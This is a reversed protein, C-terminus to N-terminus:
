IDWNEQLVERFEEWYPYIEELTKHERLFEFLRVMWMAGGSDKKITWSNFSDPFQENWVTYRGLFQMTLYLKMWSDGVACMRRYYDWQFPAEKTQIWNLHFDKDATGNALETFALLFTYGERRAHFESWMQFPTYKGITKLTDYSDINEKLAMKYYDSTHTLEHALTGIYENTNEALYQNVKDTNILICFVGDQRLPPVMRGNFDTQENKRLIEEAYEPQLEAHAQNLDDTLIIDYPPYQEDPHLTHFLSDINEFLTEM